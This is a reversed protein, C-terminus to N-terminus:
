QRTIFELREYAAILLDREGQSMSGNRKMAELNDIHESLRADEEGLKIKLMLPSM